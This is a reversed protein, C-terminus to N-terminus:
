LKVGGQDGQLHRCPRTGSRAGRFPPLSSTVQIALGIGFASWPASRRGARRSGAWSSPRLGRPDHPLIRAPARLPAPDCWSATGPARGSHPNSTSFLVSSISSFGGRDDHLLGRVPGERRPFSERISNLGHCASLVNQPPELGLKEGLLVTVLCIRFRGPHLRQRHQNGRRKAWAGFPLRGLHTLRHQAKMTLRNGISFLLPRLDPGRPPPFLRSYRELKM